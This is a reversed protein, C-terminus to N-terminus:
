QNHLIDKCVIGISFVNKLIDSPILQQSDPKSLTLPFTIIHYLHHSVYFRYHYNQQCLLYMEYKQRRGYTVKKTFSNKLGNLLYRPLFEAQPHLTLSPMKLNQTKFAM